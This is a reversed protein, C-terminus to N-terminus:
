DPALMGALEGRRMGTYLGLQFFDGYQSQKFIEMAKLRTEPDWVEVEKTAVKPSIMHNLPNLKLTGQKVATNFAISLAKHLADVTSYCGSAHRLVPLLSVCLCNYQM